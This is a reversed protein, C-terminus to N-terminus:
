IVASVFSNIHNFLLSLTLSLGDLYMYTAEAPAVSLTAVGAM